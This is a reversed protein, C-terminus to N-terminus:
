GLRDKLAQLTGPNEEMVKDWKKRHILESAVLLTVDGHAVHSTKLGDNLQLLEQVPGAEASYGPADPVSNVFDWIEKVTLQTHLTDMVQRYTDSDAVVDHLLELVHRQFVDSEGEVLRALKQLESTM